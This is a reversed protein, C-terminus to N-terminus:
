GRGPPGGYFAISPPTSKVRESFPEHFRCQFTQATKLLFFPLSHLSLLLSFAPMMSPNVIEELSYPLAFSPARSPFLLRACLPPTAKSLLVTRPAHCSPVSGFLSFFRSSSENEPHPVDHSFIRCCPFRPFRFAFNSTDYEALDDIFTKQLPHSYSFLPSFFNVNKPSLSAFFVNGRRSALFIVSPCVPSLCFFDQPRM